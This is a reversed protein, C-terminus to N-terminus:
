TNALYKPQSLLYRLILGERRGENNDERMHAFHAKVTNPAIELSEAIEFRSSGDAAAELVARQRRSLNLPQGLRDVRYVGHYIFSLPIASRSVLQLNRLGVAVHAKVTLEDRNIRDSIECNNFGLSALMLCSAQRRALTHNEARVSVEASGVQFSLMRATPYAPDRDYDITIGRTEFSFPSPASTTESMVM